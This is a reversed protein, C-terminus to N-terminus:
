HVAVRARSRAAKKYPVAAPEPVHIAWYEHVRKLEYLYYSREDGFRNFGLERALLFFGKEPYGIEPLVVVASLLPRGASNERYSIQNLMYSVKRRDQSKSADLKLLDAIEYLSITRGACAVEILRDYVLRDNM